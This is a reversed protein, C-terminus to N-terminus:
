SPYPVSGIFCNNDDLMIGIKFESMVDDGNGPLALVPGVTPGYQTQFTTLLFPNGKSDRIYVEANPFEDGRLVGEVFLNGENIFAMFGLEIDINPSLPIIPNSGATSLSFRIVGLHSNLDEVTSTVESFIKADDEDRRTGSSLGNPGEIVDGSEIDFVLFGGTRFTVDPSTSFSRNDGEFGSFTKWPAFTRVCLQYQYRSSDVPQIPDQRM